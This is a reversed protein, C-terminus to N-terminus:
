VLNELETWSRWRGRKVCEWKQKGQRGFRGAADFRLSSPFARPHKGLKQKTGAARFHPKFPAYLAVTAYEYVGLRTEIPKM